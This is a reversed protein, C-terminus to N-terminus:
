GRVASTGAGSSVLGVALWINVPARAPSSPPAPQHGLLGGQDWTTPPLFLALGTSTSPKM